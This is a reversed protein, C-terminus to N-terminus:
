PTVSISRTISTGTRTDGSYLTVSITLDHGTPDYGMQGPNYNNVEGEEGNALDKQDIKVDCGNYARFNDLVHTFSTGSTNDTVVMRISKWTLSGTNRIYVRVSYASGCHNLGLFQLNFDPALTPTFTPTPTPQATYVPLAEPNGAVTAYKSWVWCYSNADLPSVVYYYDNYPNKGTAEVVQGVTLSTVLRYYSAPGVRCNTNQTITLWVGAPTPTTTPEPTSTVTPTLTETPPIPSPQGPLLSPTIFAQVASLTGALQTQEVKLAVMTQMENENPTSQSAPLNCSSLVFIFLVPIVWTIPKKFM